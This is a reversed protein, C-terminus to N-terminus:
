EVDVRVQNYVTGRGNFCVGATMPVWCRVDGGFGMMTAWGWGTRGWEAKGTINPGGSATGAGSSRGPLAVVFLARAAERERDRPDLSFLASNTSSLSSSTLLLTDRSLPFPFPFAGFTSSSMSMSRGGGVMGMSTSLSGVKRGSRGSPSTLAGEARAGQEAPVMQILGRGVLETGSCGDVDAETWTTVM